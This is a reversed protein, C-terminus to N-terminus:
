QGTAVLSGSSGLKQFYVWVLGCAFWTGLKLGWGPPSFGPDLSRRPCRAVLHPLSGPFRIGFGNLAGRAALITRGLTSSPSIILSKSGSLWTLGLFAALILIGSVATYILFKTAAYGRQGGGWIAILLYLPILELEYFLFFLLLNQALFAGLELISCCSWTYYFRPRNVSKESSYIAIWTLLSNLAVLPLSLGDLGLKYTL